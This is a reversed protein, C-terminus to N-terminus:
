SEEILKQTRRVDEVLVKYEEPSLQSKVDQSEIQEILRKTKAVTEDSLKSYENEVQCFVLYGALNALFTHEHEYVLAWEEMIYGEAQSLNLIKKDLM